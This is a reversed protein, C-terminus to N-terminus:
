NNERNAVRLLLTKPGSETSAAPQFVERNKLIAPYLYKRTTLTWTFADLVVYDVGNKRITSIIKEADRTFPYEVTSRNSRLYFLYPKRCMVIASEPANGRVWDAIQFYNEWEPLYYDAKQENRILTIDIQLNLLFILLIAAGTVIRAAQKKRSLVVLGTIFYYFIFPVLPVVFRLTKWYWFLYVILYLPVYINHLYIRRRCSVAFGVIMVPLVFLWSKQNYYGFMNSITRRHYKVGWVVRERISSLTIMGQEPDYPNKQMLEALYSPSESVTLNRIFWPGTIVLFCLFILVAKVIKKRILFYGIASIFLFIGVTKVFYAMALGMSGLLLYKNKYTDADSYKEIFYITLVSFLLYPIETMVQHAYFVTYHCIGSLAMIAIAVPLGACKRFLQFIAILSAAAFFVSILKLAIVNDPFFYVVPAILLPYGFGYRTEQPKDPSSIIRFGNGSVISKALVIYKANDGNIGLLPNLTLLYIIGFLVCMVIVIKEYSRPHLTM